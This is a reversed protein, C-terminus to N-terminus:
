FVGISRTPFLRLLALFIIRLGVPVQLNSLRNPRASSLSTPSRMLVGDVLQFPKTM